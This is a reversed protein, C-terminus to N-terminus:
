NRPLKTLAQMLYTAASLLPGGIADKGLWDFSGQGYQQGGPTLMNLRVNNVPPPGPRAGEMPGSKNAANQGAQLVADILPDLRNDPHEWIVASGTYNIYRARYDRYCAVYEMGKDLHVEVVVGLVYKAHEAPPQIGNSRLFYYAQLYHRSELDPMQTIRQLLAVGEKKRGREFEARAEAFTKWPEPYPQQVSEGPWQSFPLDGFFTDALAPAPAQPKKKLFNFM